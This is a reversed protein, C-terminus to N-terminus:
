SQRTPPISPQGSITIMTMLHAADHSFRSEAYAFVFPCILQLTVVCSILVKTKEVNIRRFKVGRVMKQPQVARNTDSRTPFLLMALIHRRQSLELIIKKLRLIFVLQPYENLSPKFKIRIVEIAFFFLENIRKFLSLRQKM